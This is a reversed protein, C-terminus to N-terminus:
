LSSVDSITSKKNTKIGHGWSQTKSTCPKTMRPPVGISLDEILYGLGGVHSCKAESQQQCTCRSVAIDGAPNIALCPHRFEGSKMSAETTARFLLLDGRNVVECVQFKYASYLKRGRVSPKATGVDISEHESDLETVTLYRNISASTFTKPIKAKSASIDKWVLGTEDFVRRAEQLSSYLVASSNISQVVGQDQHLRALRLLDSKSGSTPQGVQKLFAKLQVVTMSEVDFDSM